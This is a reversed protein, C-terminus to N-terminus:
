SKKLLFAKKGIEIYEEPSFSDPRRDFDIGFESEDMDKIFESISNRMKKRRKSFAARTIMESQYLEVDTFANEKATLSIVASDVKPIPKFLEKKVEYEYKVNARLQTYVSLSGYAKTLPQAAIRQAFEKQVMFVACKIRGIFPLIWQIVPTSINYPINGCVGIKEGNHDLWKVLDLKLIDMNLVSLKRESMGEDLRYTEILKDAFRKDKEVAFVNIQSELLANTLIGDGPGIELCSEVGNSILLNTMKECPWTTTLFVQSLSRRQKIPRDFAM